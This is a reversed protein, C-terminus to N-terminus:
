HTLIGSWNASKLKNKHNMEDEENDSDESILHHYPIGISDFKEALLQEAETKTLPTKSVRTVSAEVARLDMIHRSPGRGGQFTGNIYGQRQGSYMHYESVASKVGMDLTLKTLHTADRYKSNGAEAKNTNPLNVSRFAKFCGHRRQHWWNLWNILHKKRSERECIWVRFANYVKMYIDPDEAEQLEAGFRLFELIKSKSGIPSAAMQFLNGLYHQKCTGITKRPGHKRRVANHLASAEDAVYMAPDLGEEMCLRKMHSDTVKLAQFVALETEKEMFCTYLPAIMRLDLDYTYTALTTFKSLRSPQHDIYCAESDLQKGETLDHLTKLSDESSVYVYPGIREMLIFDCESCMKDIEEDKNYQVSSKGCRDCVYSDEAIEIIIKFPNGAKEIKKKKCESPKWHLAM